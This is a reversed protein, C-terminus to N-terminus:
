NTLSWSRSGGATMYVQREEIERGDRFRAKLDWCGPSMTFTRTAGPQVVESEGLQDEGWSSSSCPSIYVYYIPADTQNLMVVTSSGGGGTVVSRRASTCGAASLLVGALLLPLVGRSVFRLFSTM